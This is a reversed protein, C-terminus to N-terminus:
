YDLRQVKHLGCKICEYFYVREFRVPYKSDNEGFVNTKTEDILKWEHKCYRSLILALIGIITGCIILTIFVSLM